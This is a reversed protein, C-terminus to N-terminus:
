PHVQRWSGDQKEYIEGGDDAAVYEHMSDSDAIDGEVYIAGGEMSMGVFHNADGEIVIEGGEMHGGVPYNTDGEIVLKGDQMYLGALNHTDGGVTVKKKNGAGLMLKDSIQSPIRIEDSDMLNIAASLFWSDQNSETNELKSEVLAMIEGSSPCKDELVKNARRLSEKGESAHEDRIETWNKYKNLLSNDTDGINARGSNFRGGSDREIVGSYIESTRMKRGSRM